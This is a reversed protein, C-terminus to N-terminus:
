YGGLEVGELLERLAGLRQLDCYSWWWRRPSKQSSGRWGATAPRLPQRADGARRQDKAPGPAVHQALRVGLAGGVGELVAVARGDRARAVGHVAVVRAAQRVREFLEQRTPNLAGRGLSGGTARRMVPTSKM